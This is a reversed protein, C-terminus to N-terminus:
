LVRHEKYIFPIRDIRQTVKERMIASEPSGTLEKLLQLRSEFVQMYWWYYSVFNMMVLVQRHHLQRVQMAYDYFAQDLPLTARIAAAEEDTM